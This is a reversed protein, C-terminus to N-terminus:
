KAKINNLLASTSQNINSLISNRSAIGAIGLFNEEDHNLNFGKFGIKVGQQQAYRLRIMDIFRQDTKNRSQVLKRLSKDKARDM